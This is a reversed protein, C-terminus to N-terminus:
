ELESIRLPITIRYYRYLLDSSCLCLDFFFSFFFCRIICSSASFCSSSSWHLFGHLYFEAIAFLELDVRHHCGREPTWIAFRHRMLLEEVAHERLHWLEELGFIFEPFEPCVWECPRAEKLLDSFESEVLSGEISERLQDVCLLTVEEIYECVVVTLDRDDGSYFAHFLRSEM